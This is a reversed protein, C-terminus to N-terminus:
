FNLMLELRLLHQKVSGIGQRTDVGYELGLRLNEPTNATLIGGLLFRRGADDPSARDPDVFEFRTFWTLPSKPVHYQGSLWWATGRVSPLTFPSGQGIPLREDKSYIWGGLLEVDSFIKNASVAMRYFRSNVEPASPSLGVIHGVYGIATLASGRSDLLLQEIAAVDHKTDDMVPDAGVPRVGNLMQIAVRNRGRVYYAEVALQDGVFTFPVASTTVGAVPTPSLIGTARDFGAVGANALWHGKGVRVGGFSGDRGWITGVQISAEVGEADRAFEVNASYNRGVSGSYFVTVNPQTLQSRSAPEGSTKDVEYGVKGRVALYNAIPGLDAKEGIEEPMRYGAWKFAIGTANLRPAAPYHCSSCNMNYKRAWAPIVGRPTRSVTERSRAAIYARVAAPGSAPRAAASETAVLVGILAVGSCRMAGRLRVLM